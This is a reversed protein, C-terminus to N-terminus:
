NEYRFINIISVTKLHKQMAVCTQLERICDFNKIPGDMWLDINGTCFGGLESTGIYAVCLRNGIRDDNNYTTKRAM